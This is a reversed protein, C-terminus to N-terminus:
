DLIAVVRFCKFGEFGCEGGGEIDELVGHSEERLTVALIILRGSAFRVSSRWLGLGADM